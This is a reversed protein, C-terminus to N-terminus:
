YKGIEKRFDSEYDKNRAEIEGVSSEVSKLVGGYSSADIGEKKLEQQAQEDIVPSSGFYNGFAYYMMMCVVVVSILLM